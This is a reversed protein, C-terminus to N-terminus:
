LAMRAVAVVGIVVLAVLALAVAVVVLVAAGQALWLVPSPLRRTPAPQPRSHPSPRRADVSHTM